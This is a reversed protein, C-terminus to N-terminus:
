DLHAGAGLILDGACSPVERSLAVFAPIGLDTTIDLVWVARGLRALGQRLATLCPQRFSDLRVEPRPARSYWWLALADREVLEFFGQLIAEERCSGAACGNSDARCFRHGDPLPYDYFCYATPVQKFTGETLSWAPTWDVPRQEDFPE